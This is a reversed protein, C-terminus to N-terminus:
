VFNRVGEMLDTMFNTPAHFIDLINVSMSKMVKEVEPFADYSTYGLQHIHVSDYTTLLVIYIMIGLFVVRVPSHFVKQVILGLVVVTPLILYLAKPHVYSVLIFLLTVLIAISLSVNPRPSEIRSIYLGSITLLVLAMAIIIEPRLIVLGYISVGLLFLSLFLPNIVKGYKSVFWYLSGVSVLLLTEPIFRYTITSNIHSLCSWFYASLKLLHPPVVQFGETCYPTLSTKYGGSIFFRELLIRYAVEDPYLPLQSAM